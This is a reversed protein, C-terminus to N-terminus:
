ALLENLGEMAKHLKKSNATSCYKNQFLEEYKDALDERKILLLYYYMIGKASDPNNVRSNYGIPHINFPMGSNPQLLTRIVPQDLIKEKELDFLLQVALLTLKSNELIGRAMLLTSVNYGVLSLTPLVSIIPLNSNLNIYCDFPPSYYVSEGAPLISSLKNLEVLEEVTDIKVETLTGDKYVSVKRSM